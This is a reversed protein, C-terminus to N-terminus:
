APPNRPAASAPENWNEPSCSVGAGIRFEECGCSIRVCRRLLVADQISYVVLCLFLYQFFVVLLIPFLIIFDPYYYFLRFIDHYLLNEIKYYELKHIM